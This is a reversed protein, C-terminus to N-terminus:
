ALHYIFGKTHSNHTEIVRHVGPTLEPCRYLKGDVIVMSSGSRCRCRKEKKFSESPVIPQNLSCIITSIIRLLDFHFFSVPIVKDSYINRSELTSILTKRHRFCSFNTRPEVNFSCLCKKM